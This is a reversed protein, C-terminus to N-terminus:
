CDAQEYRGEAEGRRLVKQRKLEHEMFLQVQKRTAEDTEAKMKVLIQERAKAEATQAAETKLAEGRQAEERQRAEARQAEVRQKADLRRAEAQTQMQGVM